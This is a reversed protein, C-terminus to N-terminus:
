RSRRGVPARGALLRRCNGLVRGNEGWGFVAGALELVIGLSVGSCVAQLAGVLDVFVNLANTAM